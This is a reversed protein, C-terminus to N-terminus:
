RVDLVAQGRFRRTGEETNSIPAPMIKQLVRDDFSCGNQRFEGTIFGRKGMVPIHNHQSATWPVTNTRQDTTRSEMTWTTWTTWTMEDQPTPRTATTSQTTCLILFNCTTMINFGNYITYVYISDSNSHKYVVVQSELGRSRVTRSGALDRYDRTFVRM